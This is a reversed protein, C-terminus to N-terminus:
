HEVNKSLASVGFVDFVHKSTVCAKRTVQQILLDVDIPGDCLIEYIAKLIREKRRDAMVMVFDEVWNYHWGVIKHSYPNPKNYVPDHRNVGKFPDLSAKPTYNTWEFYLGDVGVGIDCLSGIPTGMFSHQYVSTQPSANSEWNKTEDVEVPDVSVLTIASGDAAVVVEDVDHDEDPIQNGIRYQFLVEAEGNLGSLIKRLEYVNM